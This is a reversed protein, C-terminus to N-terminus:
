DPLQLKKNMPSSAWSHHTSRSTCTSLWVRLSPHQSYRHIQKLLPWTTNPRYGIWVQNIADLQSNSQVLKMRFPTCSFNSLNISQTPEAQSLMLSLKDSILLIRRVTLQRMSRRIVEELPQEEKEALSQWWRKNKTSITRMRPRMKDLATRVLKRLEILPIWTM